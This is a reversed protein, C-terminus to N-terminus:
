VTVPWNAGGSTPVAVTVPSGIPTNPNNGDWGEPAEVYGIDVTAVGDGNGDVGRPKGDADMTLELPVAANNGADIAPSGHALHYDGGGMFGPDGGIINNSALPVFTPDVDQSNGTVISNFL